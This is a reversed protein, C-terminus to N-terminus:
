KSHKNAWEKLQTKSALGKWSLELLEVIVKKNFKNTWMCIYPYGKYHDPIHFTEPYMELYQEHYEFGLRIAIFEGSEHLRSM